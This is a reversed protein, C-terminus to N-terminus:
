RLVLTNKSFRGFGLNENQGMKTFGSKELTRVGYEFFPDNEATTARTQSNRIGRGEGSFFDIPM